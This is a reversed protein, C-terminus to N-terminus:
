STRDFSSRSRKSRSATVRIKLRLFTSNSPARFTRKGPFNQPPKAMPLSKAGAGARVFTPIATVPLVGSPLLPAGLLANLLTSKGRKFQGLVAVRLLGGDLRAQLATLKAIIDRQASSPNPVSSAAQTLLEEIVPM